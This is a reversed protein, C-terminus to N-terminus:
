QGYCNLKCKKRQTGKLTKASWDFDDNHQILKIVEEAPEIDGTFSVCLNPNVIVTKIVGIVHIDQTNTAFNTLRINENAMNGVVNNNIDVQALLEKFPAKM